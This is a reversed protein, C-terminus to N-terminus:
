FRGTAVLAGGGPLPVPAVSTGSKVREVAGSRRVAGTVYLAVGTVLLGTGVGAMVKIITQADSIEKLRGDLDTSWQNSSSQNFEDLAKRANDGMLFPLVIGTLTLSGAVIATVGLVRLAKGRGQADELRQQYAAAEAERRLRAAEAEEAAVRRLREEDERQTRLRVLTEGEARKRAAESEEARKRAAMAAEDAKQRAAEAEEVQIRMKLAAVQNRAEDALPGDPATQVYREYAEIAKLKDGKLRLAQGINYLLEPAPMLAYAAEYERAADGYAGAEYYARGQDFHAKAAKRQAATPPKAV